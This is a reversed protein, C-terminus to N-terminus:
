RYHLHISIRDAAGVTNQSYVAVQYATAPLLPGLECRTVGASVSLLTLITYHESLVRGQLQHHVIGAGAAWRLNTRPGAGGAPWTQVLYGLIPTNGDFAPYWSVSASRARVETVFM